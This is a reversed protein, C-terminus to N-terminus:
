TPTGSVTITSGVLAISLGGPLAGSSITCNAYPPVGGVVSLTESYAVGVEGDELDGLIELDAVPIEELLTGVHGTSDTAIVTYTYPPSNTVTGSLLGTEDDLTLGGPLTGTHSWVIAGIGGEQVYQHSVIDGFSLDAVAPTIVIAQWFETITPEASERVAWHAQVGGHVRRNGHDHAVPTRRKRIIPDGDDFAYDWDLTYVDGSNYSGGYWRGNWKFLTNLCLRGQGNDLSYSSLRIWLGTAVDYGWTQGDQFTLIYLAHGRDEYIYAFATHQTCRAIAQDISPPSIRVPLTQGQLKYVAGDDALWFVTNDLRCISHPAICGRPVTSRTNQFLETASLPEFAFWEGTKRGMVLLQGHDAVLGVMADPDAESDYTDIARWAAGDDIASHQWRRRSAAITVFLHGLYDVDCAGLFSTDTVKAFTETLYNYLYADTGNVVLAEGVSNHAIKCRSTGPINGVPEWSRDAKVHCLDNGSVILLAGECERGARHPGDGISGCNFLGPRQRLMAPSRAGEPGLEPILNLCEQASYDLSDDTYAGGVFPVPQWRAM